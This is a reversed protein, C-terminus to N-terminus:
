SSSTSAAAFMDEMKKALDSVGRIPKATGDGAGAGSGPRISGSAAAKKANEDRVRQESIRGYNPLIDKEMYVAYARHIAAVPNALRTKEPIAMLYEYIKPSDVKKGDKDEVQFFPRARLETMTETVTARAESAVAEQARTRQAEERDTLIPKLQSGFKAELHAEFDTLVKALQEDSHAGKGDESRLDGKPLSFPKPTSDAPRGGEAAPREGLPVIQFGEQAALTRLFKQPDTLMAQVIGFSTKVTSQDLDKAWAYKAETETVAAARANKVAAEIRNPPAQGTDGTGPRGTADPKAAGDDTGPKPAGTEIDLGAAKTVKAAESETETGGSSSESALAAAILSESASGSTVSTDTGPAGGNESSGSGSGSEPPYSLFGLWFKRM